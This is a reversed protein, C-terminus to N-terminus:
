AQGKRRPAPEGTGTAAFMILDAGAGKNMMGALSKPLHETPILIVEVEEAKIKRLASISLIGTYYETADDKQKKYVSIINMAPKM